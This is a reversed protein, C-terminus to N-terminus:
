RWKLWGLGSVFMVAALVLLVISGSAATIFSLELHEQLSEVSVIAFGAVFLIYGVIWQWMSVSRARLDDVDNRLRRVELAIGTIGLAADGDILTEFRNTAKELRRVIEVLTEPQDMIETM